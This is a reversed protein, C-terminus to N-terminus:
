PKAKVEVEPLTSRLYGSELVKKQGEESLIYSTFDSVKFENTKHYLFYLGRSLKYKRDFVNKPTPLVYDDKEQKAYALGKIKSSNEMLSGMGMFGVAGPNQYIFAAMETNDKVIKASDVFITNINKKYEEAGLDKKHLVHERFFHATGSNDNRIVPIIKLDGGGSEKWNKVKGTFINHVQDLFIQKLKNEPHVVIAAGDYAILIKEIEGGKELEPLDKDSLERSIAAISIKGEKLAKIGSNSGGGEIEILFKEQKKNYSKALFDLMHHMTESGKVKLRTPFSEKQCHFLFGLSLFLITIKTIM